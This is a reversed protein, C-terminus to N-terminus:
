EDSQEKQAVMSRVDAALLPYDAECSAAYALLAPIAHPDHDIDLVFYSCGFHKEGPESKGDTRTVKFKHYIGREKNGM